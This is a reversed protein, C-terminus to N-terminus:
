ADRGYDSVRYIIPDPMKDARFNELFFSPNKQIFFIQLLRALKVFFVSSFSNDDSAEDRDDSSERREHGAYPFHAVPLEDAIVDKASNKPDTKEGEASIKEAGNGGYFVIKGENDRGNDNNRKQRHNYFKEAM